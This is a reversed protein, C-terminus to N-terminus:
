ENVGEMRCVPKTHIHGKETGVQSGPRGTPVTDPLRAGTQGARTGLAGHRSSGSGLDRQAQSSGEGQPSIIELLETSERWALISGLTICSGNLHPPTSPLTVQRQEGRMAGGGGAGLFARHFWLCSLLGTVAKAQRSMWSCTHAQARTHTQMLLPTHLPLVRTCQMGAGLVVEQM